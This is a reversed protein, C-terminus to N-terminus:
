MEGTFAVNKMFKDNLYKNKSTHANIQNFFSKTLRNFNFHLNFLVIQLDTGWM